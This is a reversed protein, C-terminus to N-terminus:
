WAFQSTNGTADGAGERIRDFMASGQGVVAFRELGIADALDIVDQGLASLQGSRAISRDRFRTARAAIPWAAPRRAAHCLIKTTRHLKGIHGEPQPDNM